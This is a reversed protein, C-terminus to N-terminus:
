SEGLPGLFQGVSLVQTLKLYNLFNITQYACFTPYGWWFINQEHMKDFLIFLVMKLIRNFSRKLSIHGTLDLNFMPCISLNQTFVKCLLLRKPRNKPKQNLKQPFCSSYRFLSLNPCVDYVKNLLLLLHNPNELSAFLCFVQAFWM